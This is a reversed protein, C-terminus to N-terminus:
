RIIVFEIIAGMLCILIATAWAFLRLQNRTLGFRREEEDTEESLSFMTGLFLIMMLVVAFILFFAFLM